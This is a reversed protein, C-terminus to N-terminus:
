AYRQAVDKYSREETFVMILQQIGTMLKLVARPCHNGTFSDIVSKLTTRVNVTSNIIRTKRTNNLARSFSYRTYGSINLSSYALYKGKTSKTKRLSEQYYTSKLREKTEKKM